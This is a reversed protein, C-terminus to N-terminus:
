GPGIKYLEAIAPFHHQGTYLIPFPHSHLKTTTFLAFSLNTLSFSVPVCIRELKLDNEMLGYVYETVLQFFLVCVYLVVDHPHLVKDRISRETVTLYM